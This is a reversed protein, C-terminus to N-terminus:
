KELSHALPWGRGVLKGDKFVLPMLENDHVAGDPQIVAQVYYEILYGSGKVTESKYPNPITLPKYDPAQYKYGIVLQQGMIQHVQDVTMGNQLAKLGNENLLLEQQVAVQMPNYVPASACGALGLSLLTMLVFRM